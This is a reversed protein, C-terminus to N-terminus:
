PRRHIVSLRDLMMGGPHAPCLQTVKKPFGFSVSGVRACLCCSADPAFPPSPAAAAAVSVSRVFPAKLSPLAVPMPVPRCTTAEAGMIICLQCLQCMQHAPIMQGPKVQGSNCTPLFSVTTSLRARPYMVATAPPRISAFSDTCAAGTLAACDEM